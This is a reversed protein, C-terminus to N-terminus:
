VDGAHDGQSLLSVGRVFVMMADGANQISQWEEKDESLIVDKRSLM